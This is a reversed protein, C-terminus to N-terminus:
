DHLSQIYTCLMTRKKQREGSAESFRPRPKSDDTEGGDAEPKARAARAGDMCGHGSVVCPWLSHRALGPAVRDQGFLRYLAADTLRCSSGAVRCRAERAELYGGNSACDMCWGSLSPRHKCSSASRSAFQEDGSRM